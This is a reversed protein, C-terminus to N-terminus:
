RFSSQSIFWVVFGLGGARVLCCWRGPFDVPQASFILSCFFIKLAFIFGQWRCISRLFFFLRPRAGPVTLLFSHSQARAPIEAPVPSFALLFGVGFFLIARPSRARQRRQASAQCAIFDLLAQRPSPTGQAAFWPQSFGFVSHCFGARQEQSRFDFGPRRSLQYAHIQASFPPVSDPTSVQHPV